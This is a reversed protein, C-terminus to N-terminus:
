NLVLVDFCMGCCIGDGYSDNITFTMRGSGCMTEIIQTASSYGSGSAIMGDGCESVLEWSTEGGYNDTLIEVSMNDVTCPTPTPAPSITPVVCDATTALRVGDSLHNSIGVKSSANIASLVQDATM